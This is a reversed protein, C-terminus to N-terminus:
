VLIAVVELVVGVDLVLRRGVLLFPVVVAVAVLDFCEIVLKLVAILLMVLLEILLAVLDVRDDQLSCSKVSINAWLNDQLVKNFPLLKIVQM